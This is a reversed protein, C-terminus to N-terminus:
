RAQRVRITYKLALHNLSVFKVDETANETLIVTVFPTEDTPFSMEAIAADLSLFRYGRGHLHKLLADFFDIAVELGRNPEFSQELRHHVRHLMLIAGLGRTYPEALRHAGSARFLELGADIALDRWTTM